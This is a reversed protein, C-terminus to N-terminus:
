HNDAHTMRTQETRHMNITHTPNKRLHLRAMQRPYGVPDQVASAGYVTHHTWGCNCTIVSTTRCREYIIDKAWAPM